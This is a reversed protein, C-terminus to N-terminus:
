CCCCCCRLPLYEACSWFLCSGWNWPSGISELECRRARRWVGAWASAARRMTELSSPRTSDIRLPTADPLGESAAAASAAKSTSLTWIRLALCMSRLPEKMTLGFPSQSKKSRSSRPNATALVSRIGIKGSSKGWPLSSHGSEHHPMSAGM